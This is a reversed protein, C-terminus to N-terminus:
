PLTTEMGLTTPKHGLLNLLTIELDQIHLCGLQLAVRADHKPFVLVNMSRHFGEHSQEFFNEV